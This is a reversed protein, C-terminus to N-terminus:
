FYIHKIYKIKGTYATYFSADYLTTNNPIYNISVHSNITFSNSDVIMDSFKM